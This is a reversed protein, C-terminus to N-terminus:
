FWIESLKVWQEVSLEEPRSTASIGCKELSSRIFDADRAVNNGAGRMSSVIQKRRQQFAEQVLKQLNQRKGLTLPFREHRNMRIIVSTVEPKPYFCSPKVNRIIKVDYLQQLIVSVIGMDNTGPKAVFREGVEKQLLVVMTDPPTASSAVDIVIRVGVSYPLNSVLKTIGNEILANLDAELADAHLLTLKPNNGWRRNLLTYLGSDKEIATVHAAKELLQETLVGLGAGIELVHETGSLAASDVILNLINRDILFNQGLKKNPSIENTELLAVVDRPSALNINIDNERM